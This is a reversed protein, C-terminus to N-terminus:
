NRNLPFFNLLCSLSLFTGLFAAFNSLIHRLYGKKKGKLLERLYGRSECTRVCLNTLLETDGGVCEAARCQLKNTHTQLHPHSPQGM